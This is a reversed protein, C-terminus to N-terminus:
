KVMEIEDKQAINYINLSIWVSVAIGIITLGTTSITNQCLGQIAVNDPFILASSIIVALFVVYIILIITSPWLPVRKYRKANSKKMHEKM